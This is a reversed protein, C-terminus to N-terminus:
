TRDHANPRLSCSCLLLLRLLVCRSIIDLMEKPTDVTGRKLCFGGLQRMGIRYSNEGLRGRRRTLCYGCREGQAALPNSCVQCAILPATPGNGHDPPVSTPSDISLSGISSGDDDGPAEGAPARITPLLLSSLGAAGTSTPLPMQLTGRLSPNSEAQQLAM